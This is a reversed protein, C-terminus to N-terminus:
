SPRGGLESSSAVLKFLRAVAEQVAPKSYAGASPVSDQRSVDPCMDRSMSSM